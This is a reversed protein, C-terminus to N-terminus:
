GLIGIREVERLYAVGRKFFLLTDDGKVLSSSACLTHHIALEWYHMMFHRFNTKKYSRQTWTMFIMWLNIIFNGDSKTHQMYKPREVKRMSLGALISINKNNKEKSEATVKKIWHKEFFVKANGSEVRSHRLCEVWAGHVAFWEATVTGKSLSLVKDSSRGSRKDFLWPVKVLTETRSRISKLRQASPIPPGRTGTTSGSLGRHRHWFVIESVLRGFFM